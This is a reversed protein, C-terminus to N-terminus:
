QALCTEIIRDRLESLLGNGSKYQEKYFNAVEKKLRHANTNGRQTERLWESLDNSNVGFRKQLVFIYQLLTETKGKGQRIASATKFLSEFYKRWQELLRKYVNKNSLDSLTRTPLYRKIAGNKLKMEYRLLNNLGTPIHENRHEMELLKDYFVLERQEAKQKYYLTTKRVLEKSFRPLYGSSNLQKIYATPENEMVFASGFELRKVIMKEPTIRFTICLKNIADQLDNWDMTNFNSGTFFRTLSGSINLGRQTISVNLGGYSGKEYVKSGDSDFGTVKNQLNESLEYIVAETEWDSLIGLAIGDIM